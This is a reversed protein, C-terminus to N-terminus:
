ELAPDVAADGSRAPVLEMGCLPCTGPHDQVIQPHMPCTYTPAAAARTGNDGPVSGAAPAGGSMVIPTMDMGCVPCRGPEDAEVCRMPCAYKIAQATAGAEPGRARDAAAAAAGSAMLSQQYLVGALALLLLGVLFTLWGPAIRIGTGQEHM